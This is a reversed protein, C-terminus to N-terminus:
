LPHSVQFRFIPIDCMCGKYTLHLLWGPPLPNGGVVTRIESRDDCVSFGGPWRKDIRLSCQPVTGSGSSGLQTLQNLIGPSAVGSKLSGNLNIDCACFCRFVRVTTWSWQNSLETSFINQNQNAIQRSPHKAYQSESTPALQVLKMQGHLVGFGKLTFEPERPKM